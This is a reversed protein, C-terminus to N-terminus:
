FTFKLKLEGVSIELLKKKTPPDLDETTSENASLSNDVVYQNASSTSSGCCQLMNSVHEKMVDDTRKYERVAESSHGTVEQILQEEVGQRFLRTACTARLSHLTFKGTYGGNLLLNPVIKELMHIGVVQKTFGTASAKM